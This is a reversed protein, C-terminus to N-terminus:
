LLGFDFVICLSVTAVPTIGGVSWKTQKFVVSPFTISGSSQYLKNTQKGSGKQDYM